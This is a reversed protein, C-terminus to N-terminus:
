HTEENRKLFDLFARMLSRRVEPERIQEIPFGIALSAYDPGKYAVGASQRSPGDYVLTTFARSDPTLNSVYATSLHETNPRLMYTCQTGVGQITLLDSPSAMLSDAPQLLSTRGSARYHLVNDTFEQEDPAQMDTGIYAGSVLLSGGSATFNRLIQRLEPSFTKYDRTSYGDSRQAGLILDLLHFAGAQVHETELAERSCSSIHCDAALLIDQAHLVPYDFTNGMVLMGELESGSYGMGRTSEKGIGDWGFYLQRGCFETSNLYPVGPDRQMDFGCSDPSYVPQPSALRQFGNAILISRASPLPALRACLTESPMSRGGNNVAEVRFHYLLSDQPEFDWHTDQVQRGNDWGSDDTRMYVIYSSPVATAELSDATPEWALRIHHNIPDAVASFRRVPLPAVVPNVSLAKGQHQLTTFRLIGKYISRALTFKFNPDLARCMDAFNQHSFMELIASPIRPVRTEGYNKDYMQRRVWGGYSRDLDLGVQQLLIDCFDRSALRSQGAPYSGDDVDTTYIALSGIYEKEKRFGADSHLALNLELPVCLGSDGPLYVSGRAMYNTAIPRTNIDDGYDYTGDKVGFQERRLGMWQASYRAAELHRPLGSGILDNTYVYQLLQATTDTSQFLSPDHEILGTGPPVIQGNPKIISGPLFAFGTSDKPQPYDVISRQVDARVVHSMGGGLRVADAGVYGRYDSVNTLTVCNEAPRGSQFDFTGLYVWTSGGMQQNVRVTTRVGGHRIVYQADPVANPLVPYTVYVAYNGDAPVEPTWTVSSTQRKSTQVPVIRSTGDRHPDDFDTLIRYRNTFGPTHTEWAFMGSTEAYRGGQEPFDNDVVVEHRQWDRERPTYVVAGARELMPYLFPVAISQTLLDETTCFLRPRQWIWKHEGSSYVRGHSAWLSLHRGQLGAKPTVPLSQNQVWPLGRYEVSGWHRREGMVDTWATTVLERIDKGGAYVTLQYTNYPAPLRLRIRSLIDDVLAPTFPQMAFVDNAYVDVTRQSESTQVQLLSYKQSNSFASNQYQRFYESLQNKLRTNSVQAEMRFAVGPLLVALLICLIRYKLTNHKM